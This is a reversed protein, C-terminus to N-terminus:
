KRWMNVAHYWKEKFSINRQLQYDNDSLPNLVKRFEFSVSNFNRDEGYIWVENYASRYVINPVGLVIYVMGRDTMWGEKYSTFLVNATQVRNYFEKILRAAQDKGQSVSLWFDEVARQKDPNDATQKFEKHSSIYRVPGIMNQHGTIDPFDGEPIMVTFGHRQLTDPMFHYIGPKNMQMFDTNGGTCLVQFVSDPKWPLFRTNEMHFPPPAIEVFHRFYAVHLTDTKVVPSLVIRFKESQNFIHDTTRGDYKTEVYFYQRSGPDDRNLLFSFSAGSKRNLDTIDIRLVGQPKNVLPIFIDRWATQMYYSSDTFVRTTSDRIEKQKIDSYMATFVEFRCSFESTPDSRKYLFGHLPVRMHLESTLSDTHFVAFRYSYYPKKSDYIESYNRNVIGRNRCSSVASVLVWCMLCIAFFKLKMSKTRGTIPILVIIM